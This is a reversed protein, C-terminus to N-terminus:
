RSQCRSGRRLHFSARPCSFRSRGFRVITQLRINSIESITRECVKTPHQRSLQHKAKCFDLESYTIVSARRQPTSRLGYSAIFFISGQMRHHVVTIYANSWAPECPLDSDLYSVSVLEYRCPCTPITESFCRPYAPLPYEVRCDSSPSIHVEFIVVYELKRHVVRARCARQSDQSKHMTNLLYRLFPALHQM